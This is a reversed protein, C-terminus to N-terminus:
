SASNRLLEILEVSRPSPPAGRRYLVSVDWRVVPDILPSIGLDGLEPARACFGPLLLTGQGRRALAIGTSYLGVQHAVTLRLGRQALTASIATWIRNGANVLIMPERDLRQWPVPVGAARMRDAKMLPRAAAPITTVHISDGFLPEFRLESADGGPRISGIAFDVERNLVMRPLQEVLCDHIEISIEPHRKRFQEVVFPFLTAALLHGVGIRVVTRRANESNRLNSVAVDLDAALKDAARAFEEGAPTLSLQRGREFLRVGLHSELDRILLSVASQSVNLQQAAATFSLSRSAAVFARIQRLTLM